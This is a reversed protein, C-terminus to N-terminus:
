RCVRLRHRAARDRARQRRAADGCADTEQRWLGETSPLDAAFIPSCERRHRRRGLGCVLAVGYLSAGAGGAARRRRADDAEPRAKRASLAAALAAETGGKGM